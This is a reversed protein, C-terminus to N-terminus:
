RTSSILYIAPTRNSLLSQPCVKEPRAKTGRPNVIYIPVSFRSKIAFV